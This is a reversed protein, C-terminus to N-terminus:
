YILLIIYMSDCSKIYLHVIKKIRESIDSLNCTLNAYVTYFVMTAHTFGRIVSLGESLIM